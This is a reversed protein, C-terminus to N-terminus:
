SRGACLQCRRIQDMREIIGAGELCQLMTAVLPDMERWHVSGATPQMDPAFHAVLREVDIEAGMCEDWVEDSIRYLGVEGLARAALQPNPPQLFPKPSTSVHMLSQWM